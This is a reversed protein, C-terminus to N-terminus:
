TWKKPTQGPIAVEFNESYLVKEQAQVGAAVALAALAAALSKGTIISM